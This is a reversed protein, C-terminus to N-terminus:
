PLYGGVGAVVVATIRNLLAIQLLYLCGLRRVESQVLTLLSVWSNFDLPNADVAETLRELPTKVTPVTPVARISTSGTGSSNAATDTATSLVVPTEMTYNTPTTDCTSILDSSSPTDYFTPTCSVMNPVSVSFNSCSSRAVEEQCTSSLVFKRM